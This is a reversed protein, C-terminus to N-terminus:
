VGGDPIVIFPQKSEAARQDNLAQLTQARTWNVAPVVAVTSNTDILTNDDNIDFWLTGTLTAFFRKLCTKQDCNAPIVIGFVQAPLEGSVSLRYLGNDFIRIEDAISSLSGWDSLCSGVATKGASTAESAAILFHIEAM